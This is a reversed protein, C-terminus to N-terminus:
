DPLSMLAGKNVFMSGGGSIGNVRFVPVKGVPPNTEGIYCTDILIAAVKDPDDYRSILKKIDIRNGPFQRLENCVEKNQEGILDSKGGHAQIIIIEDATSKKIESMFKKKKVPDNKFLDLLLEDLAQRKTLNSKLKNKLRIGFRELFNRGYDDVIRSLITRDKYFARGSKINRHKAPLNEQPAMSIIRIRRINEGLKFESTYDGYYREEKMKSLLDLIETKSLRDKVSLNELLYGL